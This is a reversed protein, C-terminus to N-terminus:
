KRGVNRMIPQEYDIIKDRRRRGRLFFGADDTDFVSSDFIDGDFRQRFRDVM